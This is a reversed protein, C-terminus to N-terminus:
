ADQILIKELKSWSNITLAELDRLSCEQQEAYLVSLIGEERAAQVDRVENDGFYVMGGAEIGLKELMLGFLGHTKSRGVENTTVLVDIYPGLGLEEVTWRQADDPGETVVVVKKGLPRLTQLLTLAGPKLILSSRLSSQYLDLLINIFEGVAEDTALQHAQLLLVFRERRYEVSARGDTFANATTTRLIDQYSKKLTNTDVDYKAQIAEFVCQSAQTSAKRFEHLTDDLDFGFWKKSLLLSQLELSNMKFIGFM